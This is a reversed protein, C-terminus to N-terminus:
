RTTNFRPGGVWRRRRLWLYMLCPVLVIAACFVGFAIRGTWVPPPNSATFFNMGFFGTLFSIPMFLTTILTFTKMVENMRNNIVSLYTDLAGAALDRLGETIDYLRVLHDYVDRFYVRQSAEIVGFEDRALRNLTERQPAVIRRLHLLARKIRLVEPLTTPGPASLIGEEIREMEDDIADVVPLHSAVVEDVLHYLLRAAGRGMVREDRTCGTWVRELPEIDLERHTVVYNPGLFIDLEKTALEEAATSDFAVAHLVLYLYSDWDDVKPVHSEKLADDIALPHFHFLDHMIRECAADSEDHCDLWLLGSPDALAAPIGEIGLSTSISGDAKRFMIRMM